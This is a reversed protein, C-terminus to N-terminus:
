KPTASGADTPKVLASLWSVLELVWVCAGASDGLLVINSPKYGRQQVLAKYVGLVDNLGAPFPHEPALRYEPPALSPVRAPPRPQRLLCRTPLHTTHHGHSQRCVRLGAWDALGM